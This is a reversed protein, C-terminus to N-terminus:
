LKRVHGDHNARRREVVLAGHEVQDLLHEVWRSAARRLVGALAAAGTKVPGDLSGIGIHQQRQVAL